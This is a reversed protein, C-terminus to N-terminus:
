ETNKTYYQNLILHILLLLFTSLLLIHVVASSLASGMYVSEACPGAQRVSLLANMRQPCCCRLAAIGLLLRAGPNLQRCLRETAWRLAARRDNLSASGTALQLLSLSGNLQLQLAASGM